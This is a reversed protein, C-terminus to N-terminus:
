VLFWVLFRRLSALANVEDFAQGLLARSRDVSSCLLDKKGTVAKPIRSLRRRVIAKKLRIQTKSQVGTLNREQGSRM